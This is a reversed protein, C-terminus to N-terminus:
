RFGLWRSVGVTSGPGGCLPSSRSSQSTGTLGPRLQAHSNLDGVVHGPPRRSLQSPGAAELVTLPVALQCGPPRPTQGWPLSTASLCEAHTGLCGPLVLGRPIGLRPSDPVAVPRIMSSSLGVVGMGCSLRTKGSSIECRSAFSIKLCLLKINSLAERWLSTYSFISGLFIDRGHCYFGLGASRVLVKYM